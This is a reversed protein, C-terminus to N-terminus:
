KRPARKQGGPKVMKIKFAVPRFYFLFYMYISDFRTGLQASCTALTWSFPSHSPSPPRIKLLSIGKSHPFETHKQDAATHYIWQAPENTLYLQDIVLSSAWYHMKFSFAFRLCTDRGIPKFRLRPELDRNCHNIFPFRSCPWGNWIRIRRSRLSTSKCTASVRSELCKHKGTASNFPLFLASSQDMGGSAGNRARPIDLDFALDDDKAKRERKAKKGLPIEAKRKRAMDKNKFKRCGRM